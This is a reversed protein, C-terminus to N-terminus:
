SGFPYKATLVQDPMLRGRASRVRMLSLIPSHEDDLAQKLAEIFDNPGLDGLAALEGAFSQNVLHTLHDGTYGTYLEALEGRLIDNLQAAQPALCAYSDHVTVLNTIGETSARNAVRILHAADLSHVFNPAASDIAKKKNIKNLYGDGIRHQVRIGDRIDITRVKSPRYHNIVPFGTPSTWTLLKGRDNAAKTLRRIFRMVNGPGPLLQDAAERVKQALYYYHSFPAGPKRRGKKRELPLAFDLPDRGMLTFSHEIDEYAEGIQRMWGSDTASYAYTMAPRKILKRIDKENCAAFFRQWGAARADKDVEVLERVRAAVDSYIDRPEDSDILNVSAGSADDAALFSLHQVGNCSGDFCIPLRTVFSEPDKWAGSLEVCAAVYRLAEKGLPRWHEFTGVPDAAIANILHRKKEGV